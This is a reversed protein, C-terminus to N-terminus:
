GWGHEIKVNAIMSFFGELGGKEPDLADATAEAWEMWEALSRGDVCAELDFPKSKLEALCERIQSAMRWGHALEALQQRREQEQNALRELEARRAAEQRRQERELEQEIHWEKLIRAGEFLRDM